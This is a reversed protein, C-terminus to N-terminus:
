KEFDGGRNIFNFDRKLFGDAIKSFGFINKWGGVGKM